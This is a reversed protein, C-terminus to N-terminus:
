GLLQELDPEVNKALFKIAKDLSGHEKILNDIDKGSLNRDVLDSATLGNSFSGSTSPPAGAAGQRVARQASQVQQSMQGRPQPPIQMQRQGNGNVPRGQQAAGTAWKILAKAYNDIFYAPSQGLSMAIYTLGKFEEEILKNAIRPDTGSTALAEQMAGRYGELRDNFGQGDPTALYNQEDESVLRTFDQWQQQEQTVQQQVQQYQQQQQAVSLAPAFMQQIQQLLGQNQQEIYRALDPDIQPQTEPQQQQAQQQAALFANLLSEYQTREQQARQAAEYQERAAERLQARTATAQQWRQQAQELTLSPQAPSVAAAGQPDPAQAPAAPSAGGSEDVQWDDGAIETAASLAESEESFAASENPESM